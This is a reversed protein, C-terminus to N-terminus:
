NSTAIFYEARQWATGQFDVSTESIQIAGIKM